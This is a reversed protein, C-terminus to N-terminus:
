QYVLFGDDTLMKYDSYDLLTFPIFEDTVTSVLLAQIPYRSTQAVSATLPTKLPNVAEASVTFDDNLEFTAIDHGEEYYLDTITYVSNHYEVLDNIKM